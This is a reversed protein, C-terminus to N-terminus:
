HRRLADPPEARLIQQKGENAQHDRINEDMVLIEEDIGLRRHPLVVLGELPLQQRVTQGGGAGQQQPRQLERIAQALTEGFEM